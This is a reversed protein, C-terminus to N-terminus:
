RDSARQDEKVVDVKTWGPPQPDADAPQVRYSDAFGEENRFWIAFDRHELNARRKAAKYANERSDAFGFDRRNQGYAEAFQQNKDKAEEM